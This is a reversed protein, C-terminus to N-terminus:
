FRDMDAQTAVPKYKFDDNSSETMMDAVLGYELADLDDLRLGLQICRLLFLATTM